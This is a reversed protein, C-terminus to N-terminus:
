QVRSWLEIIAGAMMFILVTMLGQTLRVPIPLRPPPRPGADVDEAKVHVHYANNVKSVLREAFFPQWIKRANKSNATALLPKPPLGDSKATGRARREVTGRGDTWILDITAGGDPLKPKLECYIPVLKRFQTEAKDGSDTDLTDTQRRNLVAFRFHPSKLGQVNLVPRLAYILARETWEAEGRRKPILVPGVLLGFWYHAKGRYREIENLGGSANIRKALSLKSMQSNMGIYLIKAPMASWRKLRGIAMYLGFDPLGYDAHAREAANACEARSSYPGHWDVTASWGMSKLTPKPDSSVTSLAPTADPPPVADGQQVGLDFGTADM